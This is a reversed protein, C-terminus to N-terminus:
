LDIGAVSMTEELIGAKKLQTLVFAGVGLLYDIALKEADSKAVELSKRIKAGCVFQRGSWFAAEWGVVRRLDYRNNPYIVKPSCYVSISGIQTFYQNFGESTCRITWKIKKM